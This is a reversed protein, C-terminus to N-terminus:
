TGKPAPGAERQADATYPSQPYEDVIRRWSAKADDSKGLAEYTLALQYLIVDAPLPKDAQEIMKQLEGILETGRGQERDLKYLNVRATASLAGSPEADLFARWLQKAKESDNEAIAIQALYLKAVRGTATSGYRDDLEAFLEKARARRASESAFTPRVVDAPNAGTAVVEAGDVLLAKGLLENAGDKRGGIWLFIGAVLLAVGVVGGVGWILMRKHDEAYHIGKGLAEELENRKLDERTVSDM